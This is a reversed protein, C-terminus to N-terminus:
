EEDSFDSILNIMQFNLFRMPSIVYLFFTASVEM